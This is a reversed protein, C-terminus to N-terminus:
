LSCTGGQILSRAVSTINFLLVVVHSVILEQEDKCKVFSQMSRISSRLVRRDLEFVGHWGLLLQVAVIAAWGGLVGRNSRNM